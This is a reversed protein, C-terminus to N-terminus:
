KLLSGEYCGEWREVVGTLDRRGAKLLQLEAERGTRIVELNEPPPQEGEKQLSEVSRGLSDPVAQDNM